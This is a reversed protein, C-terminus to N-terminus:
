ESAAPPRLSGALQEEPCALLPLTLVGASLTSNPARGEEEKRRAAAAKGSRGRSGQATVVCNCNFDCCFSHLTKNKNGKETRKCCEWRPVLGANFPSARQELSKGGKLFCHAASPPQPNMDLGVPVCSYPKRVSFIDPKARAIDSGGADAQAHSWLSCLLQPFSCCWSRVVKQKPFYLVFCFIWDKVSDRRARSLGLLLRVTFKSNGPRISGVNKPIQVSNGAASPEKILFRSREWRPPVSRAPRCRRTVIDKQLLSCSSIAASTASALQKSLM